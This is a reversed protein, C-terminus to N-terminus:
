NARRTVYIYGTRNQAHIVGM